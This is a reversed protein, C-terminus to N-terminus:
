VSVNFPKRGTSPDALFGVREEPEGSPTDGRAKAVSMLGAISGVDESDAVVPEPLPVIFIDDVLNGGSADRNGDGVSVVPDELAPPHSDGSFIGEVAGPLQRPKVPNM